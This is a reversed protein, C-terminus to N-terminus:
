LTGNNARKVDWYEKGYRVLIEGGAPIIKVAKIFAKKGDHIYVCNNVVGKIKKIGRADNAYRAFAKKTRKADIVRSKNGGGMAYLYDNASDHKVKGWTTVRGKYEVVLSGKEIRRKTYVGMGSGPISSRKIILHKELLAM